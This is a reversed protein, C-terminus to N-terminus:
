KMRNIIIGISDGGGGREEKKMISRRNKKLEKMRKKM